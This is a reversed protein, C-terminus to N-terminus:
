GAHASEDAQRLAQLLADDEADPASRTGTRPAGGLGGLALPRTPLHVRLRGAAPSAGGDCRLTAVLSEAHTAAAAPTLGRWLAHWVSGPDLEALAAVLPFALGEGCRNAGQAAAAETAEQALFPLVLTALRGAVPAVFRRCQPLSALAGLCRLLARVLRVRDARERPPEAASALPPAAAAASSPQLLLSAL